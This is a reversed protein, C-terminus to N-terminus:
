TSDGQRSRDYCPLAFTCACLGAVCQQLAADPKSNAAFQVMHPTM